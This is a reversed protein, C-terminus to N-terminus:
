VLCAPNYTTKKRHFQSSGIHHNDHLLILFSGLSEAEDSVINYTNKCVVVSHNPYAGLLTEIVDVWRCTDERM